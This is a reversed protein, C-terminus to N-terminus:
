YDTYVLVKAKVLVPLKRVLYRHPRSRPLAVMHPLTIICVYECTLSLIEIMQVM